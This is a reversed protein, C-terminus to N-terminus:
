PLMGRYGGIYNFYGMSPSMEGGKKQKFYMNGKGYGDPLQNNLYMNYLDEESFLGTAGITNNIIDEGAERATDWWSYDPSRNPAVVEHGIGLATAGLFSAVQPIGTYLMLEPFKKELEERTLRGANSHRFSDGADEGQEARREAEEAARKMPEGLWANVQQEVSQKQPISAGNIWPLNAPPTVEGKIQYKDLWGGLKKYGAKELERKVRNKKAQGLLEMGIRLKDAYELDADEPLDKMAKEININVNNDIQNLIAGKIGTLQKERPMKSNINDIVHESWFDSMNSNAEPSLDIFKFVEDEPDYLVNHGYNDMALKQQVLNDYDKAYQIFASEPIDKLRDLQLTALPKGQMRRLLYGEMDRGALMPDIPHTQKKFHKIVKGVNSSNLNMQLDAFNLDDIDRLAMNRVLDTDEYKLLYGPYDPLEYVGRNFAGSTAINKGLTLNGLEQINKPSQWVRQYGKLWHPQASYIANLDEIPFSTLTEGTIPDIPRAAGHSSKIPIGTVPNAEGRAYLPIDTEMIYHPTNDTKFFNKSPKGKAFSPFGTPRSFLTNDGKPNSRVLFSKVADDYGEQNVVRYGMSNDWPKFVSGRAEPNLRYTYKLPTKATLYKGAEGTASKAGKLLPGLESIVPLAEALDAGMNIAGPVTTYTDPDGGRIAARYAANAWNYPNFDMLLQGVPSSKERMGYNGLNGQPVYGYRSYHGLADLPNSLMYQTQAVRRDVASPAPSISMGAERNLIARTAEPSISPKVTVEPLMYTGFEDSWTASVPKNVEKGDQYKDLWGGNKKIGIRVEKRNEQQTEPSLMKVKWSKTEPDWMYKGSQYQGTSTAQDATMMPRIRIGQSKVPPKGIDLNFDPRELKADLYPLNKLEEYVPEETPLKYIPVPVDTTNFGIPKIRKSFAEELILQEKTGPIRFNTDTLYNLGLFQRGFDVNDIFYGGPGDATWHVDEYPINSKYSSNPAIDKLLEYSRKSLNLSDNFAKNAKAFAIPDNYVKQHWGKKIAGTNESQYKDLQGGEKKNPTWNELWNQTPVILAAGSYGKNYANFDKWQDYYLTGNKAAPKASYSGTDHYIIDLDGEKLGYDKKLKEGYQKMDSVSGAVTSALKENTEPDTWVFTISGGSFLNYSTKDQGKKTGQPIYTHNVDKQSKINKAGKKLPVWESDAKYGTDSGKGEWDVDDFRHQGSVPMDLHWGQKELQDKKSKIENTKMYRVWAAAPNEPDWKYVAWYKEPDNLLQNSASILKNSKIGLDSNRLASLSTGVYYKDPHYFQNETIDADRLFDGVAFANEWKRPRSPNGTLEKVKPTVFHTPPLTDAGLIDNNFTYSFRALSDNGGIPQYSPLMNGRSDRRAPLRQPGYKARSKNLQEMDSTGSTVDEESMLNLEEINSEGTPTDEGFNKEIFRNEFSQYIEKPSLEGFSRLGPIDNEPIKYNWAYAAALKTAENSLNMLKIVNEADPLSEYAGKVANTFDSVDPLSEYASKTADWATDLWSKEALEARADKSEKLVRDKEEKTLKLPTYKLLEDMEKKEAAVKANYAAQKKKQEEVKSYSPPIHEQYKQIFAKSKEPSLTTFKDEGIKRLYVTSGDYAIELKNDVKQLPLNEIRPGSKSVSGSTTKSQYKDLWGGHKQKLIGLNYGYREDGVPSYLPSGSTGPGHDVAEKGLGELYNHLVTGSFANWTKFSEDDLGEPSNMYARFRGEDLSIIYADPNNKSFDDLSKKTTAYSEKSNQNEYSDKSIFITRNTVPSHVLFKQKNRLNWIKNGDKDYTYLNDKFLGKEVEVKSYPTTSNRVPVIVTDDKFDGPNGVKFKNNEIGYFAPIDKSHYYSGADEAYDSNRFTDKPDQMRTKWNKAYDEPKGTGGRNVEIYNNGLIDTYKEGPITNFTFWGMPKDTIDILTDNLKANRYNRSSNIFDEYTKEPDDSASLITRDPLVQRVVAATEQDKFRQPKEDTIEVTPLVYTGPFEAQANQRIPDSTWAPNWESSNEPNWWPTRYSEEKLSSVESASTKGQYKDLWKEGGTKYPYIFKPNNPNFPAYDNTNWIRGYWTAGYDPYAGQTKLDWTSGKPARHQYFWDRGKNMMIRRENESLKGVTNAYESDFTGPTAKRGAWNGEKDLKSKDHVRYYEQIAYARPDVLIKKNSKDWGSNFILDMAEGMEVPTANPMMKKVQPYIDNMLTNMYEPDSYYTLPSGGPGGRLIEYNLINGAINQISDRESTAKPNWTWYNKVQGSKKDSQYKNLWNGEPNKYRGPLIYGGEKAMPLEYVYSGPFSYDLGPYMMQSYGTDDIGYVPFEVGKMTIRNSPILLSPENKDKSNKKYGTKSVKM